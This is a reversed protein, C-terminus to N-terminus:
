AGCVYIMCQRYGINGVSEIVPSTTSGHMVSRSVLLWGAEGREPSLSL